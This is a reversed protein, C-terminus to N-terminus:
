TAKALQNQKIEAQGFYITMTAGTLVLAAGFIALWTPVIGWIMWDFFGGFVVMMLFMPSVLRAPAYALAITRFNQYIFGTAGVLLILLWQHWTPNQWVSVAFLAMVLTGGLFYYFLLTKLSDTKTLQRLTLMAIAAFFGALLGMLAHSQAIERGPHLVFIIGIFGTIIGLWVLKSTRVGLMMWVLIPIYLPATNALLLSDMIPLYHMTYTTCYMAGLGALIRLTILGPRTSKIHFNGTPLWPLLVLLSASFRFFVVMILPMGQTLIKVFVFMVAAFLVTILAYFGGKLLSQSKTVM